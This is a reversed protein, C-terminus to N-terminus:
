YFEDRGILNMQGIDSPTSEDIHFTQNLNNRSFFFAPQKLFTESLAQDKKM